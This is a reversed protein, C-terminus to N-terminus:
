SYGENVRLYIELSHLNPDGKAKMWEVMKNRMDKLVEAYANDAALNNLAHPDNRYDYLEEVPRHRFFEMREKVEPEKEALPGLISIKNDASFEIKGGTRPQDAWANYIYGFKSTHLARTELIRAHGRHYAAFVHDRQPQSVGEIVPLFSYGDMLEPQEAGVIDLVTPMLDIGSVFHSRDVKGPKIKGPWRIVWPTKMSQLYCNGKAFPLPAGNDSLFMVVTNSDLRRKKLIDLIIGVADDARKCSNYYYSLEERVEPSDPLYGPVFVEEPKYVRSPDPPMDNSMTRAELEGKSFPRHPDYLNALLFFPKGSRSSKDLFESVYRGYVVPDRGYGPLYDESVDWNNELPEYHGKKGIIGTYFGHKKLTGGLQPVGTTIPNFGVAGNRFTYRGTVWVSRSPQCVSANVFANEFRLGETALMDINPSIDPTKGGYCGPTYIGMDDATIILVNLVDAPNGSKVPKGMALLNGCGLSGLAAAGMRLFNRRTVAAYRHDNM